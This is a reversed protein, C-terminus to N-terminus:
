SATESLRIRQPWRPQVSTGAAPKSLDAVSAANTDAASLIAELLALGGRFGGFGTTLGLRSTPAACEILPAELREAAMQELASGFVIDAGSAGILGAIENDDETFHVATLGNQLAVRSDNDPNDTIVIAAASWGLTQVLFRALGAAHLSPLALAFARPGGQRYLPELVRDLCYAERRREHDIFATAAREDIDVSAAVITELWAATAAAGVPLGASEIWPIGFRDDLTRVAAATWPSVTVSLAAQASARLSGLGGFPGFIPNPTLGIGAILRSLEEIEALWSGDQHPLPGFINVLGARRPAAPVSKELVAQLFAAFGRYASGLFGATPLDVVDGGADRAEQAMAEVDDGIMEAPCGTLVVTLEGAVVSRTNKIQERLRSAGGFVVHKESLNSTPWGNGLGCGVGHWLAAQVGCGPTAHVLPTVGDIASAAYLAGHLACGVRPRTLHAAMM